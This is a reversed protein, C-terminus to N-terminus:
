VSIQSFDSNQSINKLCSSNNNSCTTLYKCTFENNLGISSDLANCMNSAVFDKDLIYLNGLVKGRAIIVKTEQDQILCHDTFFTCKLRANTCLKSVSLFNFNFYPTFLAGHLIFVDGMRSVYKTSGDPLKIPVPHPTNVTNILQKPDVCMHTTAGTDIVWSGPELSNLTNFVIHFATISQPITISSAFDETHTLNVVHGNDQNKSGTQVKGKIKDLEFQLNQLLSSM